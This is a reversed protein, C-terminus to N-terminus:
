PNTETPLELEGSQYKDIIPKAMDGSILMSYLFDPLNGEINMSLEIPFGDYLDPNSGKLSINLKYIGTDLYNITGSFSDYHFNSLAQFAINTDKSAGADVALIGAGTSEFTGNNITQASKTITIPLHFNFFGEIKLSESELAALLKGLNIQELDVTFPSIGTPTVKLIPMTLKGDLLQGNINSFNFHDITHGLSFTVNTIDIGAAVQIKEIQGQTSGSLVGNANLSEDLSLNILELNEYSLNLNRLKAKGDFALDFPNGTIKPSTLNGDLITLEPYQDMIPALWDSITIASIQLPSLQLLHSDNKLNFSYEFPMESSQYNFNGQTNFRNNQFSWFVKSSFPNITVQDNSFSADKLNINGTVKFPELHVKTDSYTKAIDLNQLKFSLESISSKVSISNKDLAIKNFFKDINITDNALEISIPISQEQNLQIKQRNNQDNGVLNQIVNAKGSWSTAPIQTKISNTKLNTKNLALTLKNTNIELNSEQITFPADFSVKLSEANLSLDQQKFELDDLHTKSSVQGAITQESASLALNPNIILSNIMLNINAIPHEMSLNVQGTLMQVLYSGSDLQFKTIENTILSLDTIQSLKTTDFKFGRTTEIKEAIDKPNFATTNIPAKLQLGPNLTLLILDSLQLNGSGQFNITSLFDVPFYNNPEINTKLEWHITQHNSSDPSINFNFTDKGAQLKLEISSLLSEISKVTVDSSFKLGLFELLGNANIKNNNSTINLNNFTLDQVFLGSLNFQEIKINEIPLKPIPIRNDFPKNATQESKKFELQAKQAHIATVKQKLISYHIEVDTLKIILPTEGEASLELDNVKASSLGPREIQLQQVKLEPPLFNELQNPVWSPATAYAILFIVLLLLITMLLWKGIKKFFVAM